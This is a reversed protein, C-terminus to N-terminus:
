VLWLGLSVWSLGSTELFIHVCLLSLSASAPQMGGAGLSDM